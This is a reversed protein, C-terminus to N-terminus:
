LKWNMVEELVYISRSILLKIKNINEENPVQYAYHQADIRSLVLKNFQNRLQLRMVYWQATRKSDNILTIM